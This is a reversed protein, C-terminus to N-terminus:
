RGADTCRRAYEPDMPSSPSKHFPPPSRATPLSKVPLEFNFRKFKFPQATKKKKRMALIDKM